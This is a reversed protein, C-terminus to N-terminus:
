GPRLGRRRNAVARGVRGLRREDFPGPPLRRLLRGLPRERLARRVRHVERRCADPRSGRHTEETYYKARVEDARNQMVALLPLAEHPAERATGAADQLDEIDGDLVGVVTGNLMFLRTPGALVAGSFEDAALEQLGAYGGAFPVSDWDGVREDTRTTM